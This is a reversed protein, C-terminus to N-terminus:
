RELVPLGRSARIENTRRLRERAEDQLNQPAVPQATAAPMGGPNAQAVAPKPPAVDLKAYTLRFSRSQDGNTFTVDRDDIKSLTWPGITDSVKIKRVKGDVRALVGSYEGSLVGIVTFQALPDPPPPPLPLPPPPPPRRDPAFLPRELVTAYADAPQSSASANAQAMSKLDPRISKPPKWSIHVPQGDQDVWLAALGIASLLVLVLLIRVSFKNM